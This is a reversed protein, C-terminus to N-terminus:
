RIRGLERVEVALKQSIWEGRHSRHRGRRARHRVRPSEPPLGQAAREETVEREVDTLLRDSV